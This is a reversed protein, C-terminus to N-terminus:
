NGPIRSAIRAAMAEMADLAARKAPGARGRMPNDFWGPKGMQVRWPQERKGWNPTRWGRARQTRKPANTFGRVNPTRRAKVSAGTWRGGLKVEPRIKKAISSRLAPASSLGASSMGMISNKADQAAPKLVDRLNRALEKRLEKGDAEAKIARVLADLGDRTVEVEVPPDSM